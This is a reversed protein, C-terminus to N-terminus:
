SSEPAAPAASKSQMRKAHEGLSRSDEECGAAKYLTSLVALAAAEGSRESARRAMVLATLATRVATQLEGASAQAIATVLQGKSSGDMSHRGSLRLARQSNGRVAEALARLRSAGEDDHRDAMQSATEELHAPDFTRVAGDASGADVREIVVTRGLAEVVAVVAARADELMGEGRGGHQLAAAAFRVAPARLNATLAARSAKAFASAAPRAQGSRLLREGQAATDIAGAKALERVLPVDSAVLGRLSTDAYADGEYLRFWGLAQLQTSLESGRVVTRGRWAALLHDHDVGNGLTIVTELADRLHQPTDTWRMERPAMGLPRRRLVPRHPLRWADGIRTIEGLQVAGRVADVVHGPMGDGRRALRKPISMSECTGLMASVLAEADYERLAAIAIQREGSVFPVITDSGSRMLLHASSPLAKLAAAVMSVADPELPDVVICGEPQAELFSRLMADSGFARDPVRVMDLNANRLAEEIVRGAGVGREARLLVPGPTGLAAELAAIERQRAHLPPVKPLAMAAERCEARTCLGQAVAVARVPLAWGTRVRPRCFLLEPELRARGAADVLVEGDGAACALALACERAADRDGVELTVGGALGAIKRVAAIAVAAVGPSFTEVTYLRLSDIGAVPPGLAARAETLADNHGRLAVTWLDMGKMAIVM